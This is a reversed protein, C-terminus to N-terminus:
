PTSPEQLHLELLALDEPTNINLFMGKESNPLQIKFSPYKEFFLKPGYIGTEIAQELEHILEFSWLSFLPQIQQGTQVWAVKPEPRDTPSEMSENSDMSFLLKTVIDTPFLPVDAPFCALFDAPSNHAQYWKMASYIGVLPGSHKSRIDPVLSMGYQEYKALNRNVSIVLESVQPTARAIVHEILARNAIPLLPKDLFNMRSALGGALIVGCISGKNFQQEVSLVTTSLKRNDYVLFHNSLVLM